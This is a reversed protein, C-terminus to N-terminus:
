YAALRHVRQEQAHEKAWDDFGYYYMGQAMVWIPGWWERPCDFYALVDFAHAEITCHHDLNQYQVPELLQVYRAFDRAQM